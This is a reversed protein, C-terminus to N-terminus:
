ISAKSSQSSYATADLILYISQDRQALVRLMSDTAHSDPFVHKHRVGVQVQNELTSRRESPLQACTERVIPGIVVERCSRESAFRRVTAATRRAMTGAMITTRCKTVRNVGHSRTIMPIAAASRSALRESVPKRDKARNCRASRRASQITSTQRATIPYRCSALVHLESPLPNTRGPLTAIHFVSSMRPMARATGSSFASARMNDGRLVAVEPCSNARSNARYMLKEPIASTKYFLSATSERAITTVRTAQTASASSVSYADSYTTSEDSGSTRGPQGSAGAVRSSPGNARCNGHNWLYSM